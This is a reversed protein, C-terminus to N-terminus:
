CSVRPAICGSALAAERIAPNHDATIYIVPVSVQDAKLRYRLEIGSGDELNVDLIVCVAEEINVHKKLRLLLFYSLTMHTNGSCVSNGKLMRPDDEVVLVLNRRPL